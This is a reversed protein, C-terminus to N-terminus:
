PCPGPYNPNPNGNCSTPGNQEYDEEIGSSKGCIAEGPAWIQMTNEMIKLFVSGLAIIATGIIAVLVGKKAINLREPNGLSILFLFAVVSWCIIIGAIAANYIADKIKCFIPTIEDAGQAFFINPFIIAILIIGALLIKRASKAM